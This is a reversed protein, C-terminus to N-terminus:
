QAGNKVKTLIKNLYRDRPIMQIPLNEDICKEYDQCFRIETSRSKLMKIVNNIYEMSSDIDLMKMMKKGNEVFRDYENQKITLNEEKLRMRFCLEMWYEIPYEKKVQAFTTTERPILTKSLKTHRCSLNDFKMVTPFNEVFEVYMSFLTERLDYADTLYTKEYYTDFLNSAGRPNQILGYKEERKYYQEMIQQDNKYDAHLTSLTGDPNKPRHKAIQQASPYIEKIWYDQMQTSSVDAILRWPMYKDIKFGFRVATTRYFDFNPDTIWKTANSSDSPDLKDLEIILGSSLPDFIPSKIFGSKTLLTM